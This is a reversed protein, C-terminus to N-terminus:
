KLLAVTMDGSYLPKGSKDFTKNTNRDFWGVTQGASDQVLTRAGQEVRYGLTAGGASKITEKVM